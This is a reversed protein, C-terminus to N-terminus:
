RAIFPLYNANTNTSLIPFPLRSAPDGLLNFTDILDYNAAGTAWLNLKGLVAASGVQRVGRQMVADFFGLDLYRHGANVGLGSAAWSAVAGKGAARVSAEALTALGPFHFSGTYCTMELLVPLKGGNALNNVADVTLLSDGTQRDFSWVTPAGHGSYNVILRGDNLAAVLARNAAAATAYSPYPLVCAACPNFYIREASFGAPVYRPDGAIRDSESWFNGAADPTGDARYAADAVFTLRARWNGAPPNQEYALIKNVMATVDAASQAPLRGIALFPLPNNAADQFAVFRNDSATEGLWPDVLRLNPPVWNPENAGSYNKFDYSGDGVLLVFAPAPTQWHAYAYALFNRLAAPDFMGDSFEDYVDQAAVVKVRLNQTARFNALPQAAAIFAGPAILIYDAGNSASALNASTVRTIALPARRQADTLALYERPAANADAFYLTHPAAPQTILPNVIRAVNLPDTIDFAAISPSSFGAIAYRWAGPAGPAFRLADDRATFPRAYNLDFYDVFVADGVDADGPDTVRITNAGLSLYAHPFAVTARHEVAGSWRVDALLNGNLAIQTHHAGATYGVLDFQLTATDGAALADLEFAYERAPVGYAASVYNWFWHEFEEVRPSASQYLVNQELHLSATFTAPTEGAGSGDRHAMRKGAAAGYTLWYVNTRTYKSNAAQGFFEVYDGADCTAWTNGAVDLALENAQRFIQLTSPDFSGPVIGASALQACTIRYIGDADLTVRYRAGTLALSSRPARPVVIQTRWNKAAAYNLVAAQLVSEFAGENVAGVQPSAAAGRPYSLAIEVRVRRHFLLERTVPNVQIPAFEVAVLRQSRWNGQAALRAAQAPYFQNATYIAPEPAFTYGAPQALPQAPHAEVRMTPAVLPPSALAARRTELARIHLTPQAGPPIAILASAVPLQPEGPAHTNGLGAITVAAYVAGGARQERAAYDGLELELVIRTADSQLVRVPSPTQARVSAGFALVCVGVILIVGLNRFGSINPARRSQSVPQM